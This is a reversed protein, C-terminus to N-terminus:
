GSSYEILRRPNIGFIWNWPGYSRPELVGDFSVFCSSGSTKAVNRQISTRELRPSLDLLHPWLNSVALAELRPIYRVNQQRHACYRIPALRSVSRDVDANATVSGAQRASSQNIKPYRSAPVREWAPGNRDRNVAVTLWFTVSPKGVLRAGRPFTRVIEM